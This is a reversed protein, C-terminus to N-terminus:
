MSFTKGFAKYFTSCVQLVRLLKLVSKLRRYNLLLVFVCSLISSCCCFFAEFLLLFLVVDFSCSMPEILLLWLWM